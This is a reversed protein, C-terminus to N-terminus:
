ILLMGLEAEGANLGSVLKDSASHHYKSIKQQAELFSLLCGVAKKWAVFRAVLNSICAQQNKAYPWYQEISQQQNM